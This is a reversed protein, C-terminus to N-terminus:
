KVAINYLKQNEICHKIFEEQSDCEYIKKSYYESQFHMARDVSYQQYKDEFASGRLVVINNNDITSVSFFGYKYYGFKNLYLQETFPDFDSRFHAVLFYIKNSNLVNLTGDPNLTIERIVTIV